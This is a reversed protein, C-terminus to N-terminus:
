GFEVKRGITRKHDFVGDFYEDPLESAFMEALSEIKVGLVMARFKRESLEGSALRLAAERILHVQHEPVRVVVDV